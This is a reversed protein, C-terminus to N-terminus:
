KAPRPPHAARLRKVLPDESGLGEAEDLLRLIEQRAGRIRQVLGAPDRPDREGKLEDDAAKLAETRKVLEDRIKRCREERWAAIALIRSGNGGLIKALDAIMECRAENPQDKKYHMAGRRCWADIEANGVHFELESMPTERDAGLCFDLGAGSPGFCGGEDDRVRFEMPKGTKAFFLTDYFLPKMEGDHLGGRHRISGDSVAHRATPFALKGRSFGEGIRELVLRDGTLIGLSFTEQVPPGLDRVCGGGLKESREIMLVYQGTRGKLREALARYHPLAAEHDTPWMWALFDLIADGTSEGAEIRRRIEAARTEREQDARGAAARMGDLMDNITKM